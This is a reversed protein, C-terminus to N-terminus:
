PILRHRGFLLVRSQLFELFQEGRLSLRQHCQECNNIFLAGFLDFVRDMLQEVVRTM